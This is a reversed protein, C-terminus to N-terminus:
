RKKDSPQGITAWEYYKSHCAGAEPIIGVTVKMSTKYSRNHKKGKWVDKYYFHPQSKSYSMMLSFM